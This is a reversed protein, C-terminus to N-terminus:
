SYIMGTKTTTHLYFGDDPKSVGIRRGWLTNSFENEDDAHGQKAPFRARMRDVYGVVDGENPGLKGCVTVCIQRFAAKLCARTWNNDFSTSLILSESTFHLQRFM